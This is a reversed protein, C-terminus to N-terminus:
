RPQERKLIRWETPYYNNSRNALVKIWGLNRGEFQVLTWGRATQDRTTQDHATQDHSAAGTNTTGSAELEDKRLYRLAEDRTLGATQLHPSVLTSMALDHAPILEKTTPQGLAIGAKKLHLASRLVALETTLPDPLALLHSQHRFIFMPQEPQLWPHLLDLEKRSAREPLSTRRPAHWTGGANKRVCGLFFGEGKLRDPYCRYGFAGGASQTEIMNWEPAISLPISVADLQTTLWGLIDEDEQKSYSCTTYILVGDQRLAPWCDALIRQQRQSCLSVNEPSWETIAEPDRRFLGSGSCPADVVMVDFYNELRALDRPDNATVVVNAGGWKVMNEELIRVRHRIVENSVLLSDPSILSQL